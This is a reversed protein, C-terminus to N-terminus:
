ARKGKKDRYEDILKEIDKESEIGLEIVKQTGYMRIKEWKMKRIYQRIAERLFESRTMQEEESFSKIQKALKPPISLTLIKTTRM